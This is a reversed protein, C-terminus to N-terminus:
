VGASDFSWPLMIGKNLFKMRRPCNTVPAKGNALLLLPNDVRQLNAVTGL